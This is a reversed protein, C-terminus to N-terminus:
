IACIKMQVELLSLSFLPSRGSRNRRGRGKSVNAASENECLVKVAAAQSWLIIAFITCEVALRLM